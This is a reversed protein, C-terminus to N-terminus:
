GFVKFIRSQRQTNQQFFQERQKQQKTQDAVFLLVIVLFLIAAIGVLVQITSNGKKINEDIVQQRQTQGGSTQYKRRMENERKKLEEEFQRRLNEQYRRFEEPNGQYSDLMANYQHRKSTNSLVEYAEQIKKFMEEFFADGENKDPHFKMSLKRYAKKIEEQTANRSIGLVEYYNKM